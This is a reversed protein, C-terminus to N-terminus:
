RAERGRFAHLSAASTVAVLVAGLAAALALAALGDGAAVLPPDGTLAGATLSVLDVVVRSLVAGAIVGALLGVAIILLARLRLHARLEAPPLGQEELDDLDAQQEGSSVGLLLIAGLVAVLLAEFAAALMVALTGRALPDSRLEHELREQSSVALVDFPPRRLRGDVAVVRSPPVDLWLETPFGAGPESANLATEVTRRDAVVFDEADASAATGPFRRAVAAVRFVLPQGAVDIGLLRDSGAIASMRPSVVAPIRLGDTPQRPRLYTDIENTLTLGFRLSEGRVLQRVGATGIWGGLDTV